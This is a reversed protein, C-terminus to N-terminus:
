LRKVFGFFIRRSTGLIVVTFDLINHIHNATKKYNMATCFPIRAIRAVQFILFGPSINTSFEIGGKMIYNIEMKTLVNLFYSNFTKLDLFKSKSTLDKKCALLFAFNKTTRDCHSEAVREVDNSGITSPNM